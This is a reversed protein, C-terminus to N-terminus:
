GAKLHDWKYERRYWWWGKQGEGWAKLVKERKRDNDNKTIMLKAFRKSLGKM